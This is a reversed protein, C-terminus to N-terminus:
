ALSILHIFINGNNGLQNFIDKSKLVLPYPDYLHWNSRTVIIDPKFDIISSYNEEDNWLFNLKKKVIRKPKSKFRNSFMAEM